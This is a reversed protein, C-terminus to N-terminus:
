LSDYYADNILEITSPQNYYKQISYNITINKDDITFIPCQITEQWESIGDKKVLSSHNQYKLDLLHFACLTNLGLYNKNLKESFTQMLLLNYIKEDLFNKINQSLYEVLLNNIPNNISYVNWWFNNFDIEELKSIDGLWIFAPVKIPYNIEFGFSIKNKHYDDLSINKNFIQAKLDLPQENIKKIINKTCNKAITEILLMETDSKTQNFYQRTEKSLSQDLLQYLQM